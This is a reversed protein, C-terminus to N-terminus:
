RIGALVLCEAVPQFLAERVIDGVKHQELASVLTANDVLPIGLYRAEALMRIGAAGRAKSVVTPVPTEGRRYLLGVVSQGHTIALVAHRIGVRTRRQSQVGRKRRESRIHPDGEQEKRERKLETRTMRMDRLFLRRQLILDILGVIFFGLAATMALPKVTMLAIGALCSRGCSPMEFLPQLFNGLVFVFVIALILVKVIAKAFEVVNRLSAIRKLGEFPNIHDFKPKVPDFSFVPGRTAAMGAGLVAAVALVFPPLSTLLIVKFAAHFIRDWADAFPRDAVDSLIEFLAYLQDRLMPWALLLYGVLVLLGFGTVLDRSHDVQGKRRADELKKHSAPLSKEETEDKM